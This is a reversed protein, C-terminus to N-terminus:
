QRRGEEYVHFKFYVGDDSSLLLRRHLGTDFTLQITNLKVPKDFTLEIWPSGGQMDAQWQHTKGDMVNRNIGDLIQAAAGDKTESSAKVTATRALDRSDENKVGLM